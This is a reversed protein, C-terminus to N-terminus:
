QKRRARFTGSAIVRVATAELWNGVVSDGSLVGVHRRTRDAGLIVDFELISDRVVQGAVLGSASRVEGTPLSERAELSGSVSAGQQRTIMLAGDVVTGPAGVATYAWQGQVQRVRMTDPQVPSSCAVGTISVGLLLLVLPKM